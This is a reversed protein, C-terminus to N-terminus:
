RDKRFSSFSQIKREEPITLGGLSYGGAGDIRANINDAPVLKKKKSLPKTELTAPKVTSKSMETEEEGEMIYGNSELFALYKEIQVKFRNLELQSAEKINISNNFVFADELTNPSQEADLWKRIRVSENMPRDRAQNRERSVKNTVSVVTFNFNYGELISKVLAIKDMDSTSNILLDSRSEILNRASGNLIQDLQVEVLNYRSFINTILYDKGSGPGGLVFMAKSENMAKHLKDHIDAGVKKDSYHGIFEDRKGASVLGRMKSASMGEAGDADPDRHGASVVNIKKFNYEKGNYKNLLGHFEDVRDSGVVMTVHKHGAAEIHKMADIATRIKQHSIVNASPFLSRMAHVKDRHSLPNKKKDQSHSPFIYHQGGHEKAHSQVASVLKGHGSETPPNFRGFTFTAHSM